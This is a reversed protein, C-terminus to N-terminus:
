EKPPCSLRNSNYSSSRVEELVVVGAGPGLLGPHGLGLQRAEGGPEQQSRWGCPGLGLFPVNKPEAEGHHGQVCVPM